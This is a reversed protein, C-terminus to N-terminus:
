FGFDELPAAQKRRKALAEDPSPMAPTISEFFVDLPNPGELSALHSGPKPTPNKLAPTERPKPSATGKAYQAATPLERPMSSELAASAEQTALLNGQQVKVTEPTSGGPNLVSAPEAMDAMKGPKGKVWPKFFTKDIGAENMQMTTRGRKLLLKDITKIDKIDLKENKFAGSMLDSQLTERATRIDPSSEWLKNFYREVAIAKQEVREPREVISRAEDVRGQFLIEEPSRNDVAAGNSGAGITGFSGGPAGVDKTRGSDSNWRRMGQEGAVEPRNTFSLEGGQGTGYFIREPAAPPADPIDQVGGAGVLALAREVGARTGEPDLQMRQALDPAFAGSAKIAAIKKPDDTGYLEKNKKDEAINANVQSTIAREHARVKKTHKESEETAQARKVDTYLNLSDIAVRGSEIRDGVDLLEEFSAM